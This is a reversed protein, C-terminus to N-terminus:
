LAIKYVHHTYEAAFSDTFKGATVPVTRNEGVVEVTTGTIGPPLTFTKSGTTSQLGPAAFVYANGDKAKLMTDVGAGFDFTYSQTNLVPALSKVKANVATVKATREAECEILSYTGGCPGNNHQFYVIGRAEHIISSWVAGELQGLGITEAGAEGLYPKAVEVFGWTPQPSAPDQYSRMRDVLWGYTAARKPDVGQPWHPSRDIEFRVDPSTYAYKDASAVDMLQVHDDMRNPSWFTGLVGNGFNANAFRGDQYGRVKSVYEQQKTWQGEESEGCGSYGMECEDSIFWGPVGPNNGVEAQTWEDQQPLPYLGQDTVLSIPDNHEVAQYTNIGVAKYQAAHEPKGLFVAVPFFTDATWPQAKPFQAWYAPGGEWAIRPLNLGAPPPPATTTTTAPTTSAPPATTTAPASATVTVTVAPPTATVTVTQNGPIGSEIRDFRCDSYAKLKATTASGTFHQDCPDPNPVPLASATCAGAILLGGCWAAVIKFRRM